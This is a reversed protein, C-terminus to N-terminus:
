LKLTLKKFEKQGLKRIMGVSTERTCYIQSPNFEFIYFTRIAIIYYHESIIKRVEKKTIEGKVIIQGLYYAYFLSSIRQKLRLARTLYTFTRQVKVKQIM